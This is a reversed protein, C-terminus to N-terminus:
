FYLLVIEAHMACLLPLCNKKKKVPLTKFVRKKKTIYIKTNILNFHLVCTKSLIAVFFNFAM